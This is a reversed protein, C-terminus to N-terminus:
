SNTLKYIHRLNRGAEDYDLGYGVVFDNEIEFGTFDVSFAFDYKDPKLLLSCIKVADPGSKQVDPVITKLTTGTDVIDEVIIATTGKISAPPPLMADVIGTSDTGSYSKYKVFYIEHEVKIHKILDAFFLFSGSLVPLFTVKKGACRANIEGALRQIETQIQSNNLYVKFTKDKIKVNEMFTPLPVIFHPM